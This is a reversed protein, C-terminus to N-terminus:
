TNVELEDFSQVSGSGSVYPKCVCARWSAMHTTSMSPACFFIRSLTGSLRVLESSLVIFFQCRCVCIYRQGTLSLRRDLDQPEDVWPAIVLFEAPDHRGRASGRSVHYFACQLKCLQLRLNARASSRVSFNNKHAVRKM